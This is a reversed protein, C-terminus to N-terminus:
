SSFVIGFLILGQQKKKTYNRVNHSNCYKLIVKIIYGEETRCTCPPM